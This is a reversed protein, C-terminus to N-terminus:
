LDQKRATFRNEKGELLRKINERHRYTAVLFLLLSWVGMPWPEKMMFILITSLALFVLSGLSVYRTFAIVSIAIAGAILGVVPAHLFVVAVSCAVGKGGKFRYYIPWNHGVVAFLGGIMGGPDGAIVRGLLVSLVAKACDGLFTLLGASLGMVRTVNTAGTSKSGKSRLDIKSLSSLLLGTSFGGLLYGVLACVIWLFYNM